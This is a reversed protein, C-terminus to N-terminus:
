LLCVPRGLLQLVRGRGRRRTGARLPCGLRRGASHIDLIGTVCCTRRAAAECRQEPPHSAVGGGPGARRRSHSGRPRGISGGRPARGRPRRPQRRRRRRGRDM